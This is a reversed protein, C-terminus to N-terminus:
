LRGHPAIVILAVDFYIYCSLPPRYFWAAIYGCKLDFFGDNIECSFVPQWVLRQM